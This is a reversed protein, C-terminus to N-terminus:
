EPNPPPDKPVVALAVIESGLGAAAGHEAAFAALAAHHARLTRHIRRAHEAPTM